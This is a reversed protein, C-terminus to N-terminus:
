RPMLVAAVVKDINPPFEEILQRITAVQKRDFLENLAFGAFLMPLRVPGYIRHSHWALWDRGIPLIIVVKGTTQFNYLM